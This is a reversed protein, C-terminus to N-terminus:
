FFFVSKDGQCLPRNQRINPAHFIVTIFVAHCDSLKEGLVRVILSAQLVNKIAAKTLAMGARFAAFLGFPIAQLGFASKAATDAAMMQMGSDASQELVAARRQLKPKQRNVLEGSRAVTNRSFLQLAFKAHGVLRSPADAMFDAFVHGFNVALKRQGAFDFNVFGIDASLSAAHAATTARFVFGNDEPHQLATSLYHGLNHRVAFNFREMWNNLLVDLLTGRRVRVFKDSVITQAFLSVVMFYNAVIFLLIDQVARMHVPQFVKPFVQFAADAGRVNMNRFLM